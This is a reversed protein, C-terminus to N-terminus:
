DSDEYSRDLKKQQFEQTRTFDTESYKELMRILKEDEMYFLPCNSKDFAYANEIFQGLRLEPNKNWVKLLKNIIQTKTM